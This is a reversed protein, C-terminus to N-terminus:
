EFEVVLYLGEWILFFAEKLAYGYYVFAVGGLFFGRSITLSAM